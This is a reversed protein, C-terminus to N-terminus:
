IFRRRQKLTGGSAQNKVGDYPGKSLFLVTTCPKMGVKHATEAESGEHESAVFIESHQEFFLTLISLLNPISEHLHM